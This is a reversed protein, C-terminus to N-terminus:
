AVVEATSPATAIRAEREERAKQELKGRHRIRAAHTILVKNGRRFYEVGEGRGWEQYLTSRSVREALCYEAITYVPTEDISPPAITTQSTQMTDIRTNNFM